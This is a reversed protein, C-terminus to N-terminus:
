TVFARRQQDRKLDRLMQELNRLNMEAERRMQEIVEPTANGQIVTSPSYTVHIDGGGGGGAYGSSAASSLLSDLKSLPLVAESEAGEGIMALTPGTAVGGEALMPIEPFSFSLKEGGM